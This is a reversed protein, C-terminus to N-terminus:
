GNKGALSHQHSEQYNFRVGYYYASSSHWLSPLLALCELHFLCEYASNINFPLTLLFLFKPPENTHSLRYDNQLLNSTHM